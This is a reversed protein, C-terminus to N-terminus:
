ERQPQLMRWNLRGTVALALLYTAERSFASRPLLKFSASRKPSYVVPYFRRALACEAVKPTARVSLSRVRAVGGCCRCTNHEELELRGEEM